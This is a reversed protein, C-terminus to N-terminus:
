KNIAQVLQPFNFNNYYFDIDYLSFDDNYKLNAFCKDLTYFHRHVPDGVMKGLGVLVEYYFNNTFDYKCKTSLINIEDNGSILVTKCEDYNDTNSIKLIYGNQASDFYDLLMEDLYCILDQRISSVNFANGLIEKILDTSSQM